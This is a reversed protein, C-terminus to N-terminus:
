GFVEKAAHSRGKPKPKPTMPTPEIWAGNGRGGHHEDKHGEDLECRYGSGFRRAECQGIGVYHMCVGDHGVERNCPQRGETKTNVFNDCRYQRKEANRNEQLTVEMAVRQGLGKPKCAEVYAKIDDDIKM